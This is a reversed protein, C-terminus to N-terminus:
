ILLFFAEGVEEPEEGRGKEAHKRCAKQQSKLNCSNWRLELPSLGKISSLSLAKAMRVTNLCFRKMEVSCHLVLSLTKINVKPSPQSFTFHATQSQGPALKATQPEGPALKTTVPDHELKKM